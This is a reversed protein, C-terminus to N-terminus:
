NLRLIEITSKENIPKPWKFPIKLVQVTPIRILITDGPNISNLANALEPPLDKSPYQYAKGSKMSDFIIKENQDRIKLRFEIKQNPDFARAEVEKKVAASPLNSVRTGEFQRVVSIYSKWDGLWYKFGGPHKRFGDTEPADALEVPTPAPESKKRLEASQNQIYEIGKHMEEESLRSSQNEADLMAAAIIRPEISVKQRLMNQALRQGYAYNGKASDSFLFPKRYFTLWQFFSAVIAGILFYKLSETKLKM